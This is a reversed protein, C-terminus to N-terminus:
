IVGTLKSKLYKVKSTKFGCEWIRIVRWGMRRLIRSSRIDRKQNNQIKTHWYQCNQTPKTNRCNHGHWFCGDVFVVCKKKPFVFDPKGPLHFHRRWGIIKNSKFVRILKIETSKNGSSRVKSMVESRKEKTFVDM